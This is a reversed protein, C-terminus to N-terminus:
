KGSGANGKQEFRKKYKLLADDLAKEMNINTENALCILSYLTDGFEMIFDNSVYFDNKGYNTNKLIEKSLEGLESQIDLLRAAVPMPETHCNKEDNFDKVLKQLDLNKNQEM